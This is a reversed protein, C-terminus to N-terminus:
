YSTGLSSNVSREIRYHLHLIRLLKRSWSKIMRFRRTPTLFPFVVGVALCGHLLHLCLRAFRFVRVLRSTHAFRHEAHDPPPESM